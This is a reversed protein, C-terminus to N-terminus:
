QLAETPLLLQLALCSPRPCLLQLLRPFSLLCGCHCLLGLPWKVWLHPRFPTLPPARCRGRRALVPVPVSVRGGAWGPEEVEAQHGPARGSLWAKQM